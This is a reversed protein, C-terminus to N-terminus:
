LPGNYICVGTLSCGSLGFLESVCQLVGRIFAHVNSCGHEVNFVSVNGAM